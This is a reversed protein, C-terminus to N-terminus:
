ADSAFGRKSSVVLDGEFEKHKDPHGMKFDRATAAIRISPLQARM